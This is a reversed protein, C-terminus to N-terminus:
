NHERSILASLEEKGGANQLDLQVQGALITQDVCESSSSFYTKRLKEIYGSEQYELVKANM